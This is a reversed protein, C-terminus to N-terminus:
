SFFDDWIYCIKGSSLITLINRGEKARAYQLTISVSSAAYAKTSIKIMKVDLISLLKVYRKVHKLLPQCQKFNMYYGYSDQFVTLYFPCSNEEFNSLCTYTIKKGCRGGEVPRNNGRNNVFM